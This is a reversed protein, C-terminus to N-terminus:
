LEKYLVVAIIIGLVGVIVPVLIANKSSKDTKVTVSKMDDLIQKLESNSYREFLTMDSNGGIEKKINELLKERTM